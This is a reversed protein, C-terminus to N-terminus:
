SKYLEIIGQYLAIADEKTVKYEDKSKSPPKEPVKILKRAKIEDATSLANEQDKSSYVRKRMM